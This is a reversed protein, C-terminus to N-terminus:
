LTERSVISCFFCNSINNNNNNSIISSDDFLRPNRRPIDHKSHMMQRPSKFQIHSTIPSILQSKQHTAVPLHINVIGLKSSSSRMSPDHLQLVSWKTLPWLNTPSDSTTPPIYLQDPQISTRTSYIWVM